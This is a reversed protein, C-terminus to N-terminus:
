EKFYYFAEGMMMLLSEGEETLVASGKWESKEGAEVNGSTFHVRVNILATLIQM